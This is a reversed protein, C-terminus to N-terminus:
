KTSQEGVSNTELSDEREVRTRPPSNWIDSSGVRGYGTRVVGERNADRTSTGRM